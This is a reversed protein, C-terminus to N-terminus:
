KIDLFSHGRNEFSAETKTKNFFSKVRLKKNLVKVFVNAVQSANDWGMGNFGVQNTDRYSHTREYDRTFCTTCCHLTM